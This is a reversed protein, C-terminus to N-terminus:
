KEEWKMGTWTLEFEQSCEPCRYGKEVNVVKTNNVKWNEVHGCEGCKFYKLGAIEQDEWAFVLKSESMKVEKDFYNKVVSLADEIAEDYERYYDGNYADNTHLSRLRKLIKEKSDM